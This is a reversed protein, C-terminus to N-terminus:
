VQYSEGGSVWVFRYSSVQHRRECLFSLPLRKERLRLYDCASAKVLSAPPLLGAYVYLIRLDNERMDTDGLINVRVAFSGGCVNGGIGMKRMGAYGDMGM